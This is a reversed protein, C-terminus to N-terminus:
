AAAAFERTQILSYGQEPISLATNFNPGCALLIDGFTDTLIEINKENKLPL